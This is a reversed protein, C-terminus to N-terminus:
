GGGLGAAPLSVRQLGQGLIREFANFDEPKRFLMQRGNGRNRVHYILGAEIARATRPM